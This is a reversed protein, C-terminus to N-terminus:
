DGRGSLFGSVSLVCLTMDLDGGAIPSVQVREPPVLSLPVQLPRPITRFQISPLVTPRLVCETVGHTYVRPSPAQPREYPTLSPPLSSESSNLWTLLPIGSSHTLSGSLSFGIGLPKFTLTPVSLRHPATDNSVRFGGAGARRSRQWPEYVCGDPMKCNVCAM